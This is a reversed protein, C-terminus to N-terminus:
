IQELNEPHISRTQNLNVNKMQRFIHHKTDEFGASFERNKFLIKIKLDQRCYPCRIAETSDLSTSNILLGKYAMLSIKHNCQLTLLPYPPKSGTIDCDNKFETVMDPIFGNPQYGSDILKIYYLSIAQYLQNLFVLKQQAPIAVAPFALNQIYEINPIIHFSRNSIEILTNVLEHNQFCSLNSPGLFLTNATHQQIINDRMWGQVYVVLKYSKYRRHIFEMKVIPNPILTRDMEFDKYQFKSVFNKHKNFFLIKDWFANILNIHTINTTSNMLFQLVQLNTKPKEFINVSDIIQRIM